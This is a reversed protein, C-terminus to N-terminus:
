LWVRREIWGGHGNREEGCWSNDNGDDSVEGDKNSGEPNCYDDADDQAPGPLGFPSEVWFVSELLKAGRAGGIGWVVGCEGVGGGGGPGKKQWNGHM